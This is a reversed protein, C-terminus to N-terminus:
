VVPEPEETPTSPEEVVPTPEEKVPEAVVPAPEEKVPEPAPVVVVEPIICTVTGDAHFTYKNKSAPPTYAPNIAMLLAIVKGSAKFLSVADHGHEDLIVQPEKSNNLIGFSQEFMMKITSYLQTNANKLRQGETIKIQTNILSM